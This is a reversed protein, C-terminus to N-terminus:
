DLQNKAFKEFEEAGLGNEWERGQVLLGTCVMRNNNNNNNDDDDDYNKVKQLTNVILNRLFITRPYM